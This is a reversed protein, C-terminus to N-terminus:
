KESISDSISDNFNILIGSKAMQASYITAINESEMNRIENMMKIAPLLINLSGSHSNLILGLIINMM